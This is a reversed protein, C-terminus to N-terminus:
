LVMVGCSSESCRCYKSGRSVVLSFPREGGGTGCGDSLLRADEGAWCCSVCNGSGEMVLSGLFGADMPLRFEKWALTSTCAAATRHVSVTVRIVRADHVDYNQPSQSVTM